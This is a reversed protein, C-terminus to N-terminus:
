TLFWLEKMRTPLLGHIEMSYTQSAWSIHTNLLTGAPIVLQVRSM